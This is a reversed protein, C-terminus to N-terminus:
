FIIILYSYLSFCIGVNEGSKTIKHHYRQIMRLNNKEMSGHIDPSYLFRLWITYCNYLLWRYSWKEYPLFLMNTIRHKSNYSDVHVCPIKVNVYAVINAKNNWLFGTNEVIGLNCCTDKLFSQDTYLYM